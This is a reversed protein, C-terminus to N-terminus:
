FPFIRSIKKQGLTGGRGFVVLANEKDFKYYTPVKKKKGKSYLIPDYQEYPRSTKTFYNLPKSFNYGDYRFARSQLQDVIFQDLVSFSTNGNVQFHM